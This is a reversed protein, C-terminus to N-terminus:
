KVLESAYKNAEYSSVELKIGLKERLAPFGGPYKEIAGLLGADNSRLFRNSLIGFREFFAKAEQEITDKNWYGHPRGKYNENLTNAEEELVKILAPSLFDLMVRKDPHFYPQVWEPHTQRLKRTRILITSASFFKMGKRRLRQELGRVTTWGEPAKKTKFYTKIKETLEEILQPSYYEVTKRGAKRSPLRIFWEPHDNRYFEALGQVAKDTLGLPNRMASASKWGSPIPTPDGVAKKIIDVLQPSYVERIRRNVPVRRKQFWEPNSKRYQDAIRKISESIGEGGLVGALSNNTMWGDGFLPTIKLDKLYDGLKSIADKESYLRSKRGVSNIGQISSIKDLVSKLKPETVGLRKSLNTATTWINGDQDVYSKTKKSVRPFESDVITVEEKKKYGHSILIREAEHEKFLQTQMGQAGRGDIRPIEALLKNLTPVSPGFTSSLFNRTVWNQGQPDTYHKTEPDVRPLQERLQSQREREKM